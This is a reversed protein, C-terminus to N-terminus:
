SITYVVKSRQRANEQVADRLPTRVAADSSHNTASDSPTDSPPRPRATRTTRLRRRYRVASRPTPAPHRPRPAPQISQYALLAVLKLAVTFKDLYACLARCADLARYKDALFEQLSRIM